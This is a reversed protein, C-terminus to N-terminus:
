QNIWGSTLHIPITEFAKTLRTQRATKKANASTTGQFSGFFVHQKLWVERFNFDPVQFHVSPIFSTEMKKSVADNEPNWIWDQSTTAWFFHLKPGHCWAPEYDNKLGLGWIIQENRNRFSVMKKPPIHKKQM